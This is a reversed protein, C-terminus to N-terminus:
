TPPSTRAWDRVAEAAEELGSMARVGSVSCGRSCGAGGVWLAADAPLVGRLQQLLRDVQRKPFAASFSLAVVDVDYADVASAIEAIPTQTGLCLCHAGALAMVAEAMLLGLNHSEDSLTTFLVRPATGTPVTAIAQRLIRTVLDTFLHEEFVELRGNEWELGVVKSMPAVTDLVFRHLGQEALRQQLLHLLGAADHQRLRAMPADLVDAGQGAPHGSRLAGHQPALAEELEAIPWTLLQGPRHGQDTLRKILRLRRVQDPPYIRDGNADRRPSPFGYRREWIRLVDKSLGVDREVATISFGM